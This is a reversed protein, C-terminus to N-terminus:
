PLTLLFMLCTKEAATSLGMSKDKNAAAYAQVHCGPNCFQLMRNGKKNSTDAGHQSPLTTSYPPTDYSAVSTFWTPKTISYKTNNAKEPTHKTETAQRKDKIQRSDM